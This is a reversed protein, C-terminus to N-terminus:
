KALTFINKELKKTKRVTPLPYQINSLFSSKELFINWNQESTFEKILADKTLNNKQAMMELGLLYLEKKRFELWDPYPTADIKQKQFYLTKKNSLTHHQTDEFVKFFLLITLTILLGKIIFDNLLSIDIFLEDTLFLWIIIIILFVNIIITSIMCHVCILNLFLYQAILLYWSIISGLSVLIVIFFVNAFQHKSKILLFTIIIYNILRWLPIPFSLFNSYSDITRIGCNGGFDNIWTLPFCDPFYFDNYLLRMSDIIGILLLLYLLTKIVGYKSPKRKKVAILM